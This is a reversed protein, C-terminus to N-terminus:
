FKIELTIISEDPILGSTEITISQDTQSFNLTKGNVQRCTVIKKKLAPLVLKGENQLLHIFIKNGKNV